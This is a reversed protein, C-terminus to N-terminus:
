KEALYAKWPEWYSENWGNNLDEYQDDPVGAHVMTLLSGGKAKEFHLILFSDPDSKKWDSGRWTQAIFTKPVTSLLKGTIFGDWAMFDSGPKKSVKAKSGTAAGHKKSDLYIDFLKEPGVKFKVQQVITKVM